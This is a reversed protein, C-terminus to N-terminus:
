VDKRVEEDEVDEDAEAMEWGDVVASSVDESRRRRGRQKMADRIKETVKEYGGKSDITTMPKMATLGMGGDSSTRSRNRSRSRNPTHPHSSFFGFGGINGFSENRPLHTTNQGSGGGISAGATGTRSFFTTLDPSTMSMRDYESSRRSRPTQSESYQPSLPHSPDSIIRHHDFDPYLEPGLENIVETVQEVLAARKARLKVLTNGSSPGLSLVLPRLSKVIDMGVEGFRLAAFTIAPFLIYGFAFVAWLPVWDPVRGGIRNYHTWIALIINYFNYLLPAVVLSVLLKWTAMVDRGQIKVTSAALAERSKKISYVKGTIFVPAFLVLGPLVAVALVLLKGVRYLLTAVVKFISFKAYSVQHDRINLMMLEKNYALISKKLNVIRPDDKYTTYGKVLRRNLEVIMPLPLKKGKPNYLRRVAQILMLTDYDPSTVTVSVLAQYVTELVQGVAERKQGNKYMEVLENPIEVPSGFEVVARSRFKHAHFYNMGCPVIKVGCNPDEALAGLAMIAVGAKLPLLETRDHSGGEPFIGICGGEHLKKFVSSYVEGQDVHPAVEFKTGKFGQTLTADAKEDKIDQGTLQRLAVNGSFPKKLRIENPGLIEKIETNAFKNNFTPLALVGGIMYVEKNEFNTGVGKLLTPDNKPDPLYITGEAPKKLDLARGVPVSGVMRAGWGIFKRGM